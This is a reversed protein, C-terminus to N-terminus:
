VLVVFVNAALCAPEEDIGIQLYSVYNTTLGPGGGGPPVVATLGISYVSVVSGIATVSPYYTSALILAGMRARPSGDAGTFANVIATQVLTTINSPLSPSNAITVLFYIPLANPINFTVNYTPYPLEYGDTDQIQVTTNGNYNCGLDKKNWIAQAIAQASGGVVGVYVSNPALPYNSAGYNVATSLPNDVVYADIVGPVAFVAGLMSDPSGQANIAVSLQRRYAFAETSEVNAGAIGPSSNNISEWGTIAQYIQTLTNAPCAIPGNVVNAFPLTITGSAPITGGETSTYQNGSTDQALAGIPIVTNMLGGCQCQVATPVGPNRTLFYIRAIADQIFGAANDPNIQSVFYAFLDNGAGICATASSALQGQPTFLNTINLNGGFAANLDALAGALIASEQPLV